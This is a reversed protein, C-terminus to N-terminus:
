RCSMACRASRSSISGNCCIPSRGAGRVLRGARLARNLAVVLLFAVGVAALAGHPSTEDLRNPNVVALARPLLPEAVHHDVVIVDLGAEAAAALPEIRPPAAISAHRRRAAGEAKCGCCRRRTRAMARACGTPFMSRRARRRGGRLFRLLLAASTAGDVDYDGFVVITEGGRIARVLREVARDM